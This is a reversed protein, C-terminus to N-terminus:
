CQEDRAVLIEGMPAECKICRMKLSGSRKDYSVDVGAKPHCRSHLFLVTHDHNCNPESCGTQDLVARTLM